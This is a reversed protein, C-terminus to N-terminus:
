VNDSRGIEAHCRAKSILDENKMEVFGFSEKMWRIYIHGLFFYHDETCM